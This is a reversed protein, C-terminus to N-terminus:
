GRRCITAHVQSQFEPDSFRPRKLEDFSRCKRLGMWGRGRGEERCFWGARGDREWWGGKERGEWRGKERWFPLGREM